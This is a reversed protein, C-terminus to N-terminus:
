CSEMQLIILSKTNVSSSYNQENNPKQTPVAETATAPIIAAMRIVLVFNDSCLNRKWPAPSTFIWCLVFIVNGLLQHPLYTQTPTSTSRRLSQLSVLLYQYVYVDTETRLHLLCPKTLAWIAAKVDTFIDQIDLIKLSPMLSIGTTVYTWKIICRVYIRQILWIFLQLLLSSTISM